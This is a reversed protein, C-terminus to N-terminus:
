HNVCELKRLEGLGTFKVKRKMPLDRTEGTFGM